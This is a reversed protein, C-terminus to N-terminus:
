APVATRRRRRRTRREHEHVRFRVVDGYNEVYYALLREIAVKFPEFKDREWSEVEHEWMNETDPQPEPVLWGGMRGAGSIDTFGHDIAIERAEDWFSDREGDYIIELETDALGREEAWQHVRWSHNTRDKVNVAYGHHTRLDSM